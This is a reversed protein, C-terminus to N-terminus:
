GRVARRFKWLGALWFPLKKLYNNQRKLM